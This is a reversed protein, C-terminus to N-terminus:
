SPDQSGTRTRARHEGRLAAIVAGATDRLLALLELPLQGLKPAVVHLESGDAVLVAGFQRAQELLERAQPPVTEVIADARFRHTRRGDTVRLQETIDPDRLPRDHNVWARAISGHDITAARAQRAESCIAVTPEVASSSPKPPLEASANVNRVCPSVEPPPVEIHGSTGSSDNGFSLRAFIEAWRSM